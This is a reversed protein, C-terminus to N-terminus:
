ERAKKPLSVVRLLFFLLLSVLILWVAVPQSYKLGYATFREYIMVPAIMPHYAVIVIAGFESIARATCMIMGVLMSRWALPFTIRFFTATMSAGLSRSVNELREPIGEFGDKVANIYFPMGVFVMVAIIGTVSGMMRIGLGQLIQGFWHDRGAISLLAIGIIPHPIMIPLDVISEIVKKGTFSGRALIYAFPTGAVFSIAAAIFSAYISLWISRRVDTDRFAEGMSELSPQFLMQMLPLLLFSM